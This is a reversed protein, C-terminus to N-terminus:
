PEAGQPDDAAAGGFPDGESPAGRRDAEAAIEKFDELEVRLAPWQEKVEPRNWWARFTVTGQRAASEAKERWEPSLKLPGETAREERKAAPAGALKKVTFPARKAKTETLAITLDRELHSMHSIRIGGVALGGFKVAPDRYLTLSRGPYTAGDAGWAAVMVRRMSKCPRYPRGGDGEFFVNIPQEANGDNGAVRTITITRPGVILDDASLQDSKPAITLSMDTM